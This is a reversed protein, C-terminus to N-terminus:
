FPMQRATAPMARRQRLPRSTLPLSLRRPSSFRYRESPKEGKLIRNTYGSVLWFPELEEAAYNM